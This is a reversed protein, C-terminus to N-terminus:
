QNIAQSVVLKAGLQLLQKGELLFQVEPIEQKRSVQSLSSVFGFGQSGLGVM